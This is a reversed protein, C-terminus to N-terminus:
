DKNVEGCEFAMNYLRCIWSVVMDGRGKEMERTIEDKCDVKGNRRKGVRM